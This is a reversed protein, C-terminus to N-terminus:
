GSGTRLHHFLYTQTYGPYPGLRARIARSTAAYSGRDCDPFQEAIARRIWRDLPVPELRGAGFLIACDAVKPGVGHYATLAERLPEYALAEPDPLPPNAEVVARATEKLYPARYGVRCSRIAGEEAAALRAPSPVAHVTRGELEHPSGFRESLRRVMDHIREVRMNTSCIFSVLGVWLSDRVLRMGAFREVAERYIAADPGEALIAELDDDLRLVRRLTPVADGRARWELGAATQRVQVPRDDAVTEYWPTSRGTPPEYLDGGVRRWRYSQGSALTAYLDIGGALDNADIVGTEVSRSTTTM